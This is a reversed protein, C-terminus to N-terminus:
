REERTDGAAVTVAVNGLDQVEACVHSDSRLPEAATAAGALVIWGAELAIGAEDALRAAEVLSRCPNGLIAASSGVQAAEGDFNLNIGLNDLVTAPSQWNGIVFGSSSSNDAVVDELSFRFNRYRSDIIELAPAVSEVAAMAEPLTVAGRLPRALRFAIEPEIRPHIYQALNITGGDPVLMRDTLRGWILDDVGMQQMKARSTFGMKIGVLREDRELRRAISRAQVAYAQELTLADGTASLQDIARAYRAADDVRTALQDLDIASSM